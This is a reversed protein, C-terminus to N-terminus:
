SPAIVTRQSVKACIIGLAANYAGVCPLGTHQRVEDDESLAPLRLVNEDPVTLVRRLTKNAVAEIQGYLVSMRDIASEPPTNRGSSWSRATDVSVSLFRASEALSM